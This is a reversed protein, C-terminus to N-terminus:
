FENKWRHFGKMKKAFFRHDMPSIHSNLKQLTHIFTNGLCVGFHQIYGPYNPDIAMAIVCGPEPADLKEWKNFELIYAAAIQMSAEAPITYDPVINGFREQVIRVLGWCQIKEFPINILDSINPVNSM